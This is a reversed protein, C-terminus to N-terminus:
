LRIYYIFQILLLAQWYFFEILFYSINENHHQVFYKDNLTFINDSIGISMKYYLMNFFSLCSAIINKKAFSIVLLM